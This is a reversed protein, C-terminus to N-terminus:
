SPTWAAATIDVDLLYGRAEHLELSLNQLAELGLTLQDLHPMDGPAIAKLARLADSIVVRCTPM